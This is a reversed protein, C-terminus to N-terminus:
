ARELLSCPGECGKAPEFDGSLIGRIVGDVTGSVKGLDLRDFGIRGREGTRLLRYECAGGL